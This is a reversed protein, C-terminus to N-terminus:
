CLLAIAWPPLEFTLDLEGDANSSFKIRRTNQAAARLGEVHDRRLNLPCGLQQYQAMANGHDKDVIELQYTTDAPLDKIFIAITRASGQALVAEAVARTEFSAPVSQTVEDPYNYFLGAIRASQGHRTLVGHETRSLLHDGLASLFRYAHYTPKPIGHQTIMGFGGHFPEQGGGEEEFIDSFAWYSLSDVCGISQLNARVVFTAAQLYDHTYDRSSSSSSWETLHMEADPFPGNEVITKLHGLDRPTADKDRTLRAGQGHEDLAWDTPYPHVSVFDVPLSEDRCYHFFEQLWVPQWDLDSLDQANLAEAHQSTDEVEGAFRADPVYNSTAPGGVRLAADVSKVAVATRKYLELYQSRTGTFFPKLNPENWCEFYWTRVEDIGYRDVWHATTARVLEEWKDFDTPPSGNAGWWFATKKHAAIAKPMRSFEVFPRIGMDLLADFLSDVYQFYPEVKGEANERYVFMDEHFLGHFRIYRFGHTAVLDRLQAQWDARLGEAARGAGVCLNWFPAIKEGSDKASATMDYTGTKM